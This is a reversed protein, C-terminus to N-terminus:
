KVSRSFGSGSNNGFNTEQFGRAVNRDHKALVAILDRENLPKTLYADCGALTGRIKDITGGRSTLMVVVPPKGDSYKRQKIARCTQYGDLGEMMVDLFVFKYPRTNMKGLAEEGSNVLDAHFGFRSLRNRMFKLAIDSDDVVLIHDVDMASDPPVTKAAGLGTMNDDARSSEFKPLAGAGTRVSRRLTSDPGKASSASSSPAATSHAVAASATPSAPRATIPSSSPARMATLDAPVTAAAAPAAPALLSEVTALVKMLNLPRRQLIWGTGGDQSGILLVQAAPKAAICQRLVSADDANVVALHAQAADEVLQYGPPRRAALRFFSEFTVKEFSSFGVLVIKHPQSM